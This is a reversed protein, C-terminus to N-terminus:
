RESAITLDNVKLERRTVRGRLSQTATVRWYYAGPPLDTLSFETRTLGAEDIVRHQLAPDRALIFEYTRAGEEPEWRFAYRRREAREPSTAAGPPTFRREFGYTRPLGEVGDADLMTARVFLVGNPVNSFEAVGEGVLTEAFLETFGADDALQLRYQSGPRPSDIAFEVNVGDQVRGPQRLDPAPPLSLLSRGPHGIRREAAAGAEVEAYDADGEGREAVQGDLVELISRAADPDYDVRFATGRVAAVAMPTRVEFHDRPAHLPIVEYTGRGREISILREISDNLLIRHAAEIKAQTLSPLTMLTGDTFALTVFSNAGTTIVDGERVTGGVKVQSPGAAPGATVSGSFSDVRLTAVETRLRSRPALLIAGIRLHRPNSIHNLRELAVVDSRDSLYRRVISELTDHARVRYAVMSPSGPESAAAVRGSLALVLAALAVARGM